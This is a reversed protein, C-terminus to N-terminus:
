AVLEPSAVAGVRGPLQRSLVRRTPARDRERDAVEALSVFAAGDARLADLWRRLWDAFHIGEAEAHVGVVNLRDPAVHAGYWDALEHARAAGSALLEDSTPLTTPIQLTRARAPGLAPYFPAGGRCDSAFAFGLEDQVRLSADTIQWGPAGSFGPLHGLTQAFRSCARAYSARLSAEDMAAVGDQWGVHDFGHLGVPHGSAEAARLLPAASEGVDPAPLLTGSLLTRLGYMRPAGTRLMKTLFGRRFIRRIAKGSNDQGFAVFIAARAGARDLTRLLEPLGAHLARHNCVDVKIAIETTL